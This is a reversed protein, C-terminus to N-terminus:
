IDEGYFPIILKDNKHKDMYEFLENFSEFSNSFIKYKKHFPIFIKLLVLDDELFDKLNNDFSIKFLFNSKIDNKTDGNTLGYFIHNLDYSSFSLYNGRKSYIKSM